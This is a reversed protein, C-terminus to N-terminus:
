RCNGYGSAPPPLSPEKRPTSLSSFLNSHLDFHLNFLLNFLLNSFLNSFNLQHFFLDWAKAAPAKTSTTDASSTASAMQSM